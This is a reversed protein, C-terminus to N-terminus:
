KKLYDDIFNLDRRLQDKLHHDSNILSFRNTFDKFRLSLSKIGNSVIKYGDKGQLIDDVTERVNAAEDAIKTEKAMEALVNYDNEKLYKFKDGYIQSFLEDDIKKVEGPQIEIITKFDIYKKDLWEEDSLSKAKAEPTLINVLLIIKRAEDPKFGNDILETYYEKEKYEPNTKRYIEITDHLLNAAVFIKKDNKNYKKFIPSEYGLYASYILHKIYPDETVKRKDTSHFQRTFNVVPLFEDNNLFELFRASEHCNQNLFRSSNNLNNLLISDNKLINKFLFYNVLRPLVAIENVM